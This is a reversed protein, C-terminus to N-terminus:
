GTMAFIRSLEIKSVTEMETIDRSFLM